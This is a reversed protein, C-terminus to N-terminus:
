SLGLLLYDRDSFTDDEVEIIIQWFLHSTRYTKEFVKLISLLSRMRMFTIQVHLRISSWIM